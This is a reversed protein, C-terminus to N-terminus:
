FFLPWAVSYRESHNSVAAEKRIQRPQTVDPRVPSSRLNENTSCIYGRRTSLALELRGTPRKRPEMRNRLRCLQGHAVVETRYACTKLRRGKESNRRLEVSTLPPDNGVRRPPAGTAQHLFRGRHSPRTATACPGSPGRRLQPPRTGWGFVAPSHWLLAVIPGSAIVGAQPSPPM